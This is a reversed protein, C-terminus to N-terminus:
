KDDEGSPWEADESDRQAARIRTRIIKDNANRDQRARGAAPAQEVKGGTAPQADISM